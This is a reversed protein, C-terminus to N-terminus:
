EIGGDCTEQYVPCDDCNCERGKNCVLQKQVKELLGSDILWDHVSPRKALRSHHIM